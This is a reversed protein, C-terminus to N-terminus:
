FYLNGDDDIVKIDQEVHIKAKNQSVIQMLEQDSLFSKKSCKGGRSCGKGTKYVEEIQSSDIQNDVDRLMKCGLGKADGCKFKNPYTSCGAICILSFITVLLIKLKRFWRVYWFYKLLQYSFSHHAHVAYLFVHACAFGSIQCGLDQLISPIIM